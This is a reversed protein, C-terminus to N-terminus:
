LKQLLFKESWHTIFRILSPCAPVGMNHLNELFTDATKFSQMQQTQGTKVFILFTPM